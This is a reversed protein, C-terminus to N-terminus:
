KLLGGLAELLKWQEESLILPHLEDRELTWRHIARRLLLARSIMAETFNWRHKVDRIVM